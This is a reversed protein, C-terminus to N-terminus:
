LSVWLMMSAGEARARRAHTVLQELLDRAEIGSAAVEETAAWEAAAQATAAPSSAALAEVFEPALEFVWPGTELGRHAIPEGPVYRDDYPTRTVIARLTAVMILDLGKADFGPFAECPLDAAAVASAATRPAVVVDTLGM